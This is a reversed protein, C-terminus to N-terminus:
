SANKITEIDSIKNFNMINFKKNIRKILGSLIKGPGIEIINKEKLNELLNISEVWRVKNSMQNSLNKKITAVDNSNKASINSIININSENFSIHDIFKNMEKQANLMLNSHFAASVNLLIFKIAGYRNFVSESNLIEEKKGSIVIQIPSNDNAIEIELNNEKIIQEAKVCNIGIIAAMTSKNPEYANQMLEGRNKLLYACDKITFFNAACLASYEGLSHGLMFNIKLDSIDSHKKLVQFLSISVAFISIQTFQTQHLLDSPNNFIIDKIDIKSVDSILGFTDKVEQFSDYFDKGMEVFQSGQGPFVIVTM